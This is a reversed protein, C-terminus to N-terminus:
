STIKFLSTIATKDFGKVVLYVGLSLEFVAVPIASIGAMPDHQGVLGFM